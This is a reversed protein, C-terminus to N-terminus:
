TKTILITRNPLKSSYIQKLCLSTTVAHPQCMFNNHEYSVKVNEYASGVKEEISRMSESNKMQSFKSSIGSTISGFVSATKEGTTKLVSETRQFSSFFFYM